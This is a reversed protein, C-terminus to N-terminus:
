VAPNVATEQKVAVIGFKRIQKFADDLFGLGANLSRLNRGLEEDTIGSANPIFAWNTDMIKRDTKDVRGMEYLNYLLAKEVAHVMNEDQCFAFLKGKELDSLRSELLEKKYQEDM